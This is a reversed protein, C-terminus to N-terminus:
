AGDVSANFFFIKSPKKDKPKEHNKSQHGFNKKFLDKKKADYIGFNILSISGQDPRWKILAM